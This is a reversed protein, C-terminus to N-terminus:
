LIGVLTTRFTALDGPTLLVTQEAAAWTITGNANPTGMRYAVSHGTGPFVHRAYHVTNLSKDYFISFEPTYIGTGFEVTRYETSLSSGPIFSAYCLSSVSDVYFLWFRGEAYFTNQNPEPSTGYTSGLLPVQGTTISNVISVPASITAAIVPSAVLLIALITLLIILLYKRKKVDV